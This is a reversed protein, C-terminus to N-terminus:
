EDATMYEDSDDSEVEERGAKEELDTGDLGLGEQEDNRPDIEGIACEDSARKGEKRLVDCAIEAARTQVEMKSLGDGVSVVEREGVMIQCTLRKMDEEGEKGLVYRVKEQDALQGLEEKPHLLAIKRDMVRRLYPMLGIHELFSRCHALSGHTDIFLAGLLSEIIDSMFKPPELRAFLSWPYYTGNALIDAIAAQLGELRTLCAQQAEGVAPSGHRMAQWLYFPCSVPVTSINKSDETVPDARQLMISRTLCLYGLFHGNVLATRILHLDQTAIPTEHAFATTTVLNDLVSDGLFELRQYSASGNPGIHSPHTLSEVLLAKLSFNHGILQEVQTLHASSSVLLDYFRYLIDHAQSATSWAVEPLFLELFKLAKEPGGEVYAAGLLAEVVDALTKSSMERKKPLKDELLEDNFIPRWKLGTFAKTLIFKDLGIRIAALALPGNSVIHDKKHSLIGEHYHLHAAMVTLSTFFKLFSDGLFELRNYDAPEQASPASIAATVLGRDKFQLPSLVTLCLRDVIMAVKIKHLISPMFMASLSYKFPLRDMECGQALLMQVRSTRAIKADQDPMHHLFDNKKPLKTMEILVCTETGNDEDLHTIDDTMSNKSLAGNISGNSRAQLRSENQDPKFSGDSCVDDIIAYRVDHFIYPQRNQTLDRVLGAGGQLDRDCLNDARVFGSHMEVWASLHSVSHPMILITFDMRDLDMRGKFIAQLILSTSQAAAATLSMSATEANPRITAKFTTGADWYLEFATIEPLLRPLLMTLEAIVTENHEIILQSGTLVESTQWEQAVSLWPDFQESVEVLSPRKEIATYAEDVGEDVHGLPLLNENVLGARYLAAYAEFAADRRAMKETKWQFASCAERLSTDVSNPLVVKASIMKEDHGLSHQEFTFAPSLDVYQTAPLAACFHYLHQVADDLTLKAGTSENSLVRTGEEEQAELNKLEQLTRLDDMYQERMKDELKYWTSVAESSPGDEFMLVFKSTSKRARGRRQIFSKLNPPSNFCIVVNCASVDIGEELANTTVILNKRGQRLDDLTTRQNKIDALEGITTKRSSFSSAGVFTSIAFKAVHIALLHSLVAVEARTQVFVLGSFNEPKEQRLYEFLKQVKPTSVLTESSLAAEQNPIQVESIKKRLYKKEDDEFDEVVFSGEATGRQFKQICQHIYYEAASAGLETHVASARDYLGKIQDHCYRCM